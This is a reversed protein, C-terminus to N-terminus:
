QTQKKEDLPFLKRLEELSILKTLNEKKKNIKIIRNNLVELTIM